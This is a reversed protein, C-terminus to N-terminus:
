EGQGATAGTINDSVNGVTLTNFNETLLVQAQLAVPLMFVALLVKKM